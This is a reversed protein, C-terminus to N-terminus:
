DPLQEMCKNYKSSNFKLIQIHELTAQKVKDKLKREISVVGVRDFLISDFDSYDRTIFLVNYLYISLRAIIFIDGLPISPNGKHSYIRAIDFVREYVKKQIIQNDMMNNFKEFELFKKQEEYANNKFAGRLFEIRVIPDILLNNAKFIQMFTTLYDPDGSLSSLINNDLVLLEKKIESIVNPDYFASM